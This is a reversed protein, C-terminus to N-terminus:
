DQAGDLPGMTLRVPIVADAQAPVIPPRVVVTLGLFSGRVLASPPPGRQVQFM